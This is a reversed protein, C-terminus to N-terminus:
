RLMPNNNQINFEDFRSSLLENEKKLILNNSKNNNIKTLLEADVKVLANNNKNLSEIVGDIKIQLPELNVTQNIVYEKKELSDIKTVLEGYKVFAGGIAGVMAILTVISGLNQKLKDM